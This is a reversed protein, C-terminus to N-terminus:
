LNLYLGCLGGVIDPKKRYNQLADDIPYSLAPPRRRVHLESKLLKIIRWMFSRHTIYRINNFIECESQDYYKDQGLNLGM